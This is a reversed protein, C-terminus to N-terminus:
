GAAGTIPLSLSPEEAKLMDLLIAACKETHRRAVGREALAEVQFTTVLEGNETPISLPMREAKSKLTFGIQWLHDTIPHQVRTAPM